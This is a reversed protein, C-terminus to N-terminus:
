VWHEATTPHMISRLRMKAPRRVGRDVPPSTSRAQPDCINTLTLADTSVSFTSTSPASVTETSIEEHNIQPVPHLNTEVNNQQLSADNPLSPDTTTELHARFTEVLATFRMWLQERLQDFTGPLTTLLREHEDNPLGCRRPCGLGSASWREGCRYCFEGGCFCVMHPCGFTREVAMGCDPCTQWGREQILTRLASDESLLMKDDDGENTNRNNSDKTEEMNGNDADGPSNTGESGVQDHGSIDLRRAAGRLALVGRGRLGDCQLRLLRQVVHAPVVGRIVHLPVATRCSPHPCRIPLLSRDNVSAQAYDRVCSACVISLCDSCCFPLNQNIEDSKTIFSSGTTEWCVTCSTCSSPTTSLLSSITLRRKSERGADQVDDLSDLDRVADYFRKQGMTAREDVSPSSQVSAIVSPGRSM